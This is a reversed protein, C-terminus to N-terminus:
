RKKRLTTLWTDGDDSADKSSEDIVFVVEESKAIEKRGSNQHNKISTIAKQENSRAQVLAKGSKFSGFISNPLIRSKKCENFDNDLKDEVQDNSINRVLLAYESAKMFASPAKVIASSNSDAKRKNSTISQNPHYNGRRSAQGKTAAVCNDCM